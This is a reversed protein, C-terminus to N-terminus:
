HGGGGPVDQRASAAKGASLEVRAIADALDGVAVIREEDIFVNVDPVGKHELLLLVTHLHSRCWCVSTYADQAYKGADPLKNGANREALHREGLQSNGLLRMSPHFSGGRLALLEAAKTSSMACALDGSVEGLATVVRQVRDRM